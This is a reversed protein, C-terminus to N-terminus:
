SVIDANRSLEYVMNIGDFVWISEMSIGIMVYCDM